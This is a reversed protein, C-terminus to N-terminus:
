MVDIVIVYLPRLKKNEELKVGMASTQGFSPAWGVEKLDKLCHFHDYIVVM